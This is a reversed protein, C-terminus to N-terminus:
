ERKHPTLSSWKRIEWFAFFFYWEFIYAMDTKDPDPRIFHLGCWEPFWSVFQYGRPMRM